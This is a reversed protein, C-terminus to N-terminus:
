AVAPSGAARWAAMTREIQDIHDELHRSYIQLWDHGSYRGSESHTGTKGWATEDLQRVLPATNARVAEVAALAADLPHSHYDFRRAWNDPDYGLIVPDAEAMLYRIRAAANTESDACHVVIEHVSFEGHEPRWKMAETRVKALPTRLRKPATAYQEILRAREAADLTM